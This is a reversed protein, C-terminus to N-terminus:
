SARTTASRSDAQSLYPSSVTEEHCLEGSTGNTREIAAAMVAEIAEASLVPLMLRAAILTDRGFDPTLELQLLPKCTLFRWGGALFETDYTLFSMQEAVESGPGQIAALVKDLNASTSGSTRNGPGAGNMPSQMAQSPRPSPSASGSAGTGNLAPTFAVNPVVQRTQNEHLTYIPNTTTMGPPYVTATIVATSESITRDAPGGTATGNGSGTPKLFLDDPGLGNASVWPTEPTTGTWNFHSRFHLTMPTKNDMRWFRIGPPGDSRKTVAMGANDGTKFSLYQVTTGNLWHRVLQVTDKTVEGLTYNFVSNFVKGGSETYDRLTRVSGVTITLTM